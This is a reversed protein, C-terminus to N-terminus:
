LKYKKIKYEKLDFAFYLRIAQKISKLGRPVNFYNRFIKFENNIITGNNHSNMTFLYAKNSKKHELLIGYKEM